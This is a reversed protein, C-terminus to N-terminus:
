EQTARVSFLVDGLYFPGDFTVKGKVEQERGDDAVLFIGNTSDLDEISWTGDEFTLRAHVGSITKTPDPILVAQVEDTQTGEPLRRGVVATKKTLPITNDGFVLEGYVTKRRKALVTRDDPLENAETHIMRRSKFPISQSATGTEGPQGVPRPMVPTAPKIVPTVPTVPTSPTSSPEPSRPAFPNSPASPKESAPEGSPEPAPTNLVETPAQSQSPQPNRRKALAEQVEPTQVKDFWDLLAPYANPHGIIEVWLDPREQTLQFLTAPSVDEGLSADKADPQSFSNM